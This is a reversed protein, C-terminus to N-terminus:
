MILNPILGKDLDLVDKIEPGHGHAVFETDTLDQIRDVFRQANSTLKGKEEDFFKSWPEFEEFVPKASYLKSRKHFSKDWRDFRKGDIDYAVILKVKEGIKALEELRDGCTGVLVDIESSDIANNIEVVDFWGLGRPKGTTTGFEGWFERLKTELPEDMRGVFPRGGGVSSEYMKVVGALVDARFPVISPNSSTVGPYLGRDVDLQFGQAGEGVVLKFSLNNMIDSHLVSLESLVNREASYSDVFSDYSVGKPMGDPFRNKLIQIFEARDLFEEFRIGVRGQKDMATPRIGKGTSLHGTMGRSIAEDLDIHYDLTVHANSAIGFNCTDIKIGQKKLAEIEELAKRPNFYVGEGMLNFTGPILIGSPLQHLAYKKGELFVTHGANAGGQWRLVLVRPDESDGYSEQITDVAKKTYYGVRVGKGEDGTQAGIFAISGM